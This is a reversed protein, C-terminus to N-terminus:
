NGCKGIRRGSMNQIMESGQMDIRLIGEFTDGHYTIEGALKSKGQPSDCVMKWIVTDGNVSTEITKCKQDPQSSGPVANERTICQNHKVAPINMGMMEIKSTIEWLGEQLNPGSEALCNSGALMGVGGFFGCFVIIQAQKLLM